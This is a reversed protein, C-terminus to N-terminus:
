ANIVGDIFFREFYNSPYKETMRDVFAETENVDLALEENNYFDDWEKTLTDENLDTRILGVNEGDTDALQYTKM